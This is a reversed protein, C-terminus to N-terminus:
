NLEQILKMMSGEDVLMELAEELSSYHKVNGGMRSIKFLRMNDPNANCIKVSTGMKISYAVSVAILSLGTSDIIRADSLNWIFNYKDNSMVKKLDKNIEDIKAFNNITMDGHIHYVINEALTDKKFTM